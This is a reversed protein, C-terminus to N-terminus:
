PAPTLVAQFIGSGPGRILWKDGAQTSSTVALTVTGHSGANQDCPRPVVTLDGSSNVRFTFATGFASPDAKWTANNCDTTAALYFGTSPNSIHGVADGLYTGGTVFWQLSRGPHPQATAPNGAAVTGGLAWSAGFKEWLDFPSNTPGNTLAAAPGAQSASAVQAVLVSSPAALAATLALGLVLRKM